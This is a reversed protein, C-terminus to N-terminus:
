FLLASAVVIAAPLIELGCLYSITAFFSYRVRLFQSIRFLIFLFVLGILGWLIYRCIEAPVGFFAIALALPVLLVTLAIFGSRHFNRVVLKENNDLKRFRIFASPLIRLLFYAAFIGVTVCVSWQPPVDEMFRAPYLGFRDVILCFPLICCLAVENRMRTLSVNRELDVSGRPRDISAVLSPLVRFFNRMALLVLLIAVITLIGNIGTDRWALPSETAPLPVSSMNLTSRTLLSDLM